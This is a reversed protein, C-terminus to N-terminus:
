NHQWIENSKKATLWNTMQWNDNEECANLKAIEAFHLNWGTEIIERDRRDRANCSVNCLCKATKKFKANAFDDRSYSHRSYFRDYFLEAVTENELNYTPRSGARTYPFSPRNHPSPYPGPWRRWFSPCGVTSSPFVLTSSDWIPSSLVSLSLHESNTRSTGMFISFFHIM